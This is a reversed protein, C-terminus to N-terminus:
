RLREDVPGHEHIDVCAADAAPMSAAMHSLCQGQGSQWPSPPLMPGLNVVSVLSDLLGRGERGLRQLSEPDLDAHGGDARRRLIARGLAEHAGHLLLLDPEVVIGVEVGSILRHSMEQVIHILVRAHVRRQVIQGRGLELRLPKLLLTAM